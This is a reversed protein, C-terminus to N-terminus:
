QAGAELVSLQTKIQASPFKRPRVVSITAALRARVLRLGHRASTADDPLEASLLGFVARQGFYHPLELQFGYMWDVPNLAEELLMMVGTRQGPEDCHIEIDFETSAESVKVIARGDPLADDDHVQPSLNHDDYVVRGDAMLVAAAPYRTGVDESTAWEEFVEELRVVAGAVNKSIQELYEKLGRRMAGVADTEERNTRTSPLDSYTVLVTGGPPPPVLRPPNHPEQPPIPPACTDTM